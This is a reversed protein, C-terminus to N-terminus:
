SRAPVPTHFVALWVGPTEDCRAGNSLATTPHDARSHPDTALAEQESTAVDTATETVPEKTKTEVAGPVTRPLPRRSLM